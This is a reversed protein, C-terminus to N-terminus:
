YSPPIPPNNDVEPYISSQATAPPDIEAGGSIFAIQEDSLEVIEIHM